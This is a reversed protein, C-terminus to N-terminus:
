HTQAPPPASAGAARAAHRLAGAAGREGQATSVLYLQRQAEVDRNLRGALEAPADPPARPRRPPALALPEHPPARLWRRLAGAAGRELAASVENLM